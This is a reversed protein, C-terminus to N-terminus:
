KKTKYLDYSDIGTYKKVLTRISQGVETAQKERDKQPMKNKEQYDWMKDMVGSMFIKMAGRFGEKTYKYQKDPNSYEFGWINSEMEILTPSISKGIAEMIDM